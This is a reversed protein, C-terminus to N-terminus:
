LSNLFLVVSVVYDINVFSSLKILLQYGMVSSLIILTTEELANWKLM